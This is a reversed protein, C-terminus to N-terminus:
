GTSSAPRARITVSPCTRNSSPGCRHPGLLDRTVGGPMQDDVHLVALFAGYEASVRDVMGELQGIEIHCLDAVDVRPVGRLHAPSEDLVAM